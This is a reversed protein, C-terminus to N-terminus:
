IPNQRIYELEDEFDSGLFYKPPTLDEGRQLAEWGAKVKDPTAPLSFIRVGCADRIANIVAMHNSCQFVEACGCSGHPGNPRPNEVFVVNFDDPIDNCTPIGCYAMNGSKDSADYDEKLAFGISHSLGGYGQGEVSLRNGVTGIDVVSTYRLVKTKGTDVSVEVLAVNVGYMYTAFRNGEGTNPDQCPDLGMSTEDAHGSYRTPIGERVMEEYTRYTGDEKRMADLMKKAADLIARGNMFHSRSAAALGSDPATKTDNVVLRVQEPRLGLPELAKLVHTLTGIDGGQGVDEWTNYVNVGGDPRLELVDECHDIFGKGVSFGGMSIGVGLHRGAAKGAEAEAKYADYYPKITELLQPYVYSQYPRCNLTTDGPRAANIYRFEWPDIGAKEAAMDILAESTTYIQPAGFGRYACTFAHNSVGGRALIKANPINYGSFAVSVMNGFVISATGAYAGHDLAVDYEVAQIKGDEGVAIRGNSWTASRKGTM